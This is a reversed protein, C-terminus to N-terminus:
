QEHIFGIHRKAEASTGSRFIYIYNGAINEIIEDNYRHDFLKAGLRNLIDEHSRVFTRDFRRAAAGAFGKEPMVADYEVGLMIKAWLEYIDKGCACSIADAVYDAPPNFEAKVLYHEENKGFDDSSKIFEFHFFGKGIGFAKLLKECEATFINRGIATRFSLLERDSIIKDPFGCYESVACLVANSEEDAIGDCSIYEGEPISCLMYSNKEVKELLSYIESENYLDMDPCRKDAVSLAKLPYGFRKAFQGAGSVSALMRHPITKVGANEARAFVKKRDFLVNLRDAGAGDIHYDYRIKAELDRWYSNLSEVFDIRGYKHIFFACARYVADYDHLDGVRYYETMSGKLIAPFTEYGADGIGLVNVGANSLASVYKWHGSPYNPSIFVFNM